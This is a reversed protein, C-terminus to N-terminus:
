SQIVKYKEEIVPDFSIHFDSMHKGEPVTFIYQDKLENNRSELPEIRDVLFQYRRGDDDELWILSKHIAEAPCNEWCITIRCARKGYRCPKDLSVRLIGGKKAPPMFLRCKEIVEGNKREELHLFCGAYKPKIDNADLSDWYQIQEMRAVADLGDRFLTCGYFLERESDGALVHFRGETIEVRDRLEM